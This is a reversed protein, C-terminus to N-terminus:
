DLSAEIIDLEEDLNEITLSDFDVAGLDLREWTIDAKIAQEQPSASVSEQPAQSSTAVQQSCSVLIVAAVMVVFLTSAKM